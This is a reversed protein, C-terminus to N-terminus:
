NDTNYNLLIYSAKFTYDKLAFIYRPHKSLSKNKIIFSLYSHM